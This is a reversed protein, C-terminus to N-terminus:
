KKREADTYLYFCAHATCFEVLLHEIEAHMTV